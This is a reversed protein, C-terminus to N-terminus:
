QVTVTVHATHQIAGSTATVTVTYNLPTLRPNSSGGCGAQLIVFALFFSSLLWLQSDRQKSNVSALGFGVLVLPIPLSVAYLASPFRREGSPKLQASQSPATITLESNASNAGPMVSTLSLSCTALPTSGTVACSLQVTSDFPGNLGSITIGDTRQGGSPLTLISSAVTISFDPVASLGADIVTVNASGENAVYIKHTAPNVAVARPTNVNPDVVTTISDSAGNIATISGPNSCGVSSIFCGANAVYVMDTTEDVAIAIPAVANPDTVTKTLNAAGDIVTVNNSRQNAVYIRNTTSNVAIGFGRSDPGGPTFANPDTVTTTSNTGGDIVTVNGRNTGTGWAQNGTNAVYIKNTATNVAVSNPTIANPDIITTLSNTDGDIVTINGPNTGGLRFSNGQNAVYIKNTAPNVAVSVPAVANPDAITSYSGTNGDIITINNGNYNAVYIKNTASNIAVAIPVSLLNDVITETLNTTGNIAMISGGAVAGFGQALGFNALYINNTVANTAVARPCSGATIMITSNTDGDIVAVSGNKQNKISCGVSVAAYVKNTASDVAIAEPNGGMPIPAVVKQAYTSIPLSVILAAIVMYIALRPARNKSKV